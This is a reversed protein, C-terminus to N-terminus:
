EASRKTPPTLTHHAEEVLKEIANESVHCTASHSISRHAYLFFEMNGDNGLIPSFTVGEVEFGNASAQECAHRLVACHVQADRVIGGKEVQARGAEFQPKVLTLLWADETLLNALAPLLLDISIFSVDMVAADPRFPLQAASLYRANTRELVFVRPDNRLRWHLQGHGVDLAIIRAAGNQLLCDTFGGTSAGVDLISLESVPPHFIALAHELKEGGRGVYRRPLGRIELPVDRAVQDGPKPNPQGPCSVQGALLMRKAEERSPAIGREVLLADLRAKPPRANM